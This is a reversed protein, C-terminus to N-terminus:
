VCHALLLFQVNIFIVGENVNINHLNIMGNIVPKEINEHFNCKLPLCM